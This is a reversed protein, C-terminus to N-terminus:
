FDTIQPIKIELPRNSYMHTSPHFGFLHPKIHRIIKEYPADFKRKKNLTLIYHGKVKPLIEKLLDMYEKVTKDIVSLNQAKKTTSRSYNKLVNKDITKGDYYEPRYPPDILFFTDESDWRKISDTFDQCTIIATPFLKACKKNVLVSKDNLIIKESHSYKVTRGLGSFPEVYLKTKPFYAGIQSAMHYLGGYRDPLSLVSKNV